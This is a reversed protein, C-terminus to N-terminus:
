YSDRMRERVNKALKEIQEAKKIVDVSLVNEDARDVYQKLETSLVLLRDTDKKLDEFRQKNRAKAQDRELRLQGESKQTEQPLEPGRPPRAQNLAIVPLFLLFVLLIATRRM